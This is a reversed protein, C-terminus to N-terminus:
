AQNKKQKYLTSTKKYYSGEEEKRKGRGEGENDQM